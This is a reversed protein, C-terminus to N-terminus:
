KPNAKKFERMEEDSVPLGAKRKEYDYMLLYDSMGLLSATQLKLWGPPWQELPIDKLHPM